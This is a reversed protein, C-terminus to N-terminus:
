RDRVDVADRRPQLVYCTWTRRPDDRPVRRPPPERLVPRVAHAVRAWGGGQVGCDGKAFAAHSEPGDFRYGELYIWEAEAM